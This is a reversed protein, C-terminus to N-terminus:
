TRRHFRLDGNALRDTRYGTDHVRHHHHPCMLVANALDTPGGTHWPDLHHADCWTGPIDCGEARCARDRILLAKRQAPTFLRKARGLDVPLSTGDLVAPLIKATCALRRAQSATIRDGTLNDGPVLGAGILDATALEARLSDLPITVVVTTADGGHVPLRSPDVTELLRAFAEGMRRPYPLRTFPDSTQANEGRQARPNTFAELYTALRTAVADPVLASIRTIGDGQRRMTMRTRDAAATELDALRAAEAAEAVEPAIVDLVRRGIRGLEKPGFEGACGVLHAEARDVTDADVAAPLTDLARRIVHAQALTVAGERMGAALVPRERDLVTALGMDARADSFRTRTQHALWGATDKAGTADALDGADALVRLRLEVLQAEAAVLERLAAAKDSTSMFTPNVGAVGKLVSRIDSVAALIPHGVLDTM